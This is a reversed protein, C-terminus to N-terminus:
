FKLSIKLTILRFKRSISQSVLRSVSRGVSQSVSQSIGESFCLNIIAIAVDKIEESNFTVEDPIHRRALQLLELARMMIRGFSVKTRRQVGNKEEKARLHRYATHTNYSQRSVLTLESGALASRINNKAQLM